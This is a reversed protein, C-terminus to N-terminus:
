SCWHREEDLLEVEEAEISSSVQRPDALGLLRLAGNLAGENVQGVLTERKIECDELPYTM